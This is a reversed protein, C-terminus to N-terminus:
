IYIALDEYGLEEVVTQLAVKKSEIDPLKLVWELAKEVEKYTPKLVKLDHIHVSQRGALEDAAAYLKLPLLDERGLLHLTLRDGFRMATLRKEYGEPLGWLALKRPGLNIWDGKMGALEPHAEAVKGICKRVKEPFVDAYTVQMLGRDWPGIVDVDRTTRLDLGQLAMAMGGCVVWEVPESGEFRLWDALESLLERAQESSM